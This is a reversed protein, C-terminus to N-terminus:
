AIPPKSFSPVDPQRQFAVKELVVRTREELMGMRQELQSLSRRQGPVAEIIEKMLGLVKQECLIAEPDIEEVQGLQVPAAM